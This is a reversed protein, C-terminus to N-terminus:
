DRSLEDLLKGTHAGLGHGRALDLDALDDVDLRLTVLDGTIERAGLELHALRSDPGFQPNFVADPAAAYMTTGNGVHDTVFWPDVDDVQALAGSLDDPQLAPLDACLAAV